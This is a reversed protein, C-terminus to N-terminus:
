FFYEEIQNEQIEFFQQIKAIEYFECIFTIPPIIIFPLNKYGRIKYYFDYKVIRVCENLSLNYNYIFDDINKLFDSCIILKKNM